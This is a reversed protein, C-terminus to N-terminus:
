CSSLFRAPGSRRPRSYPHPPPAPLDCKARRCVTLISPESDQRLVRRALSLGVAAPGTVGAPRCDKKQGAEWAWGRSFAAPVPSAPWPPTAAPDVAGTRERWGSSSDVSTGGSPPVGFCSGPPCCPDTSPGASSCRAGERSLSSHKDKLVGPSLCVSGARNGFSEHGLGGDSRPHAWYCSIVGNYM